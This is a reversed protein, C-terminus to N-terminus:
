THTSTQLGEWVSKDGDPLDPIFNPNFFWLEVGGVGALGFVEQDGFPEIKGLEMDESEPQNGNRLWSDYMKRKAFVRSDLQYLPLTTTGNATDYVAPKRVKQAWYYVTNPSLIFFPNLRSNDKHLSNCEIWRASLEDIAHIYLFHIDVKYDNTLLFSETVASNKCTYCSGSPMGLWRKHVRSHHGALSLRFRKKELLEGTTLTWKTQEM